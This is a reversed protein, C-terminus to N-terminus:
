SEMPLVFFRHKQSRSSWPWQFTPAGMSVKLSTNLSNRRMTLHGSDRTMPHWTRPPYAPTYHTCIVSWNCRWIRPMGRTRMEWCPYTPTALPPSSSNRWPLNSREASTTIIGNRRTKESSASSIGPHRWHQPHQREERTPHTSLPPTPSALMNSPLFSSGLTATRVEALTARSWCRTWRWSNISRRSPPMTLSSRTSPSHPPLSGRWPPM